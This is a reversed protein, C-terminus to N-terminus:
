SNRNFKFTLCVYHFLTELSFSNMVDKIKSIVNLCQVTPNRLVPNKIFKELYPMVMSMSVLTPCIIMAREILTVGERNVSSRHSNLFDNLFFGFLKVLYEQSLIEPGYVGTYSHIFFIFGLFSHLNRASALLIHTDYSKISFILMSLLQTISEIYPTFSVGMTESTLWLSDLAASQLEIVNSRCFAQLLSVSSPLLFQSKMSLSANVKGLALAYGIRISASGNIKESSRKILDELIVDGLLISLFGMSEASSKRVKDNSHGLCANLIAHINTLFSKDELNNKDKLLVKLIYNVCASVNTFVM